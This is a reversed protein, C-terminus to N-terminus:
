QGTWQPHLRRAAALSSARTREDYRRRHLADATVVRGQSHDEWGAGASGARRAALGWALEAVALWSRPVIAVWKM